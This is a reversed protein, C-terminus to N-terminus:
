CRISKKQKKFVGGINAANVTQKKLRGNTNGIECQVNGDRVCLVYRSRNYSMFYQLICRIRTNSAVKSGGQFAHRLQRTVKIESFSIDPELRGLGTPAGGGGVPQRPAEQVFTIRQVQLGHSLFYTQEDRLSLASSGGGRGRDQTHLQFDQDLRVCVLEQLLEEVSMAKQYPVLGSLERQNPVAVTWM